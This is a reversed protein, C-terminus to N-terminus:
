IPSREEDLSDLANSDESDILVEALNYEKGEQEFNISDVLNAARVIYANSIHVLRRHWLCIYKNQSVIHTPRGWKTM